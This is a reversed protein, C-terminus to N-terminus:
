NLVALIENEHLLLFKGEEFQVETGAYKGYVVEDGAKLGTKKAALKSVAEVKGRTTQTQAVDPIHLGGASMTEVDGPKVVVRDNLPQLKLM